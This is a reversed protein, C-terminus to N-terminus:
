SGSGSTSLTSDGIPGIQPCPCRVGQPTPRYTVGVWDSATIQGFASSQSSERISGVFDEMPIGVFPGEVITAGADIRSPVSIGVFGLVSDRTAQRAGSPAVM